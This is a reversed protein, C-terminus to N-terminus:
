RIITLNGNYQKREDTKPTGFRLIWTYTGDQCPSNNYTGDWTSNLDYSEWVIQGWRNYILFSFDTPDIGSTFVPRFAQNYENNDPTFANPIYFLENPCLTITVTISEPNSVCGNDWRVVSFTYVGEEAWSITANQSVNTEGFVTWENYGGSASVAGYVVQTSDGDCIQLFQTNEGVVGDITTTITPRPYVQVNISTDFWCGSQSYMYNVNDIGIFGNDACYQSGWVNMGSFIGGAPTATLTICNDYECFPGVSDIVLLINLDTITFTQPLSQCGLANVGIVSLSNVYTGGNVSTVDLNIQNTGQGSSINGITNTWVYGLNPFVSSVNYPNITSNYCVTDSGTIPNITVLPPDVLTTTQTAPCNNADTVTVSYNGSCLNIATQTTQNNNWLFTYPALGDIPNVTASGDCYGFCVPNTPTITPSQLPPPNLLTASGNYNCGNADGLTFNYTGSCLNPLTLTNGLGNWNITFPAAGGVPTVTISGNCGNNCLPNTVTVTPNPLVPTLTVHITDPGLNGAGANCSSWGANCISYVPICTYFAGQPPPTVTIQLGTGIPNPNGVQFWTYTPSVAPGSPTYRYANNTTTWQTSNRGPVTVGITGALNHIGQVATGGAWQNCGPKNAIHNEIINTSEYLAIHYTGQLNTCSFMPVGIWSVVLKRCPATGQVQYRVQGGIGPNWDQWPGMICNKPVSINATPIAQTTFTTPQAATFSIWGNSGIWFQTYTQGFFCFNFGINFPGLQSDDGLQVLAGTNVQPVYPINSVGYNTTQNPQSGPGCQALSATLTTQNVGCPLTLDPGIYPCNQSYVFLPLLLFLLLKKM